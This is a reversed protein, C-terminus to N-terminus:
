QRRKKAVVVATGICGVLGIVALWPSLLAFTNVPQVCGGVPAPESVECPQVGACTSLVTFYNTVSEGYAYNATVTYRGSCASELVIVPCTVYAVRNSDYNVSCFGNPKFLGDPYSFDVSSSPGVAQLNVQTGPCGETPALNLSASDVPAFVPSVGALAVLVMLLMISITKYGAL